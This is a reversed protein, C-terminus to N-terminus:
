LITKWSPQNLFRQGVEVILSQRGDALDQTWNIGLGRLGTEM